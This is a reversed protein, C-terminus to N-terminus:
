VHDDEITAMGIVMCADSFSHSGVLLQSERLSVRDSGLSGCDTVFSLSYSGYPLPKFRYSGDNHVDTKYTRGNEATATVWRVGSQRAVEGVIVGRSSPTQPLSKCASAFLSISASVALM